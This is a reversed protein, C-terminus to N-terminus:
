GLVRVVSPIFPKGVTSNVRLAAAGHLLRHAIYRGDVLPTLLSARVMYERWQSEELLHFGYYHFSRGSDLIVGSIQGMERLAFEIIDLNNDTAECRFDMMPIHRISDSFTRCTSYIALGLADSACKQVIPVLASEDLDTSVFSFCQVSEDDADHRIAEKILLNVLDSKAGHSLVAHWYPLASESENRISNVKSLFEQVKWVDATKNLRDELSETARYSKFSFEKVGSFIDPFRSVLHLASCGFQIDRENM